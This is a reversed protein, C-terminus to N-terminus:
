SMSVCYGGFSLPTSRACSPSNSLSSSKVPSPMPLKFSASSRAYIISSYYDLLPSVSESHQSSTSSFSCRACSSGSSVYVARGSPFCVSFDPYRYLRAAVLRSNLLIVMGCYSIGILGRSFTGSSPLSFYYSANRDCSWIIFVLSTDCCRSRKSPPFFASSGRM